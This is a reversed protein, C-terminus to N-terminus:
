SFHLLSGRNAGLRWSLAPGGQGRCSVPDSSDSRVADWLSDFPAAPIDVDRIPLHSWDMGLARVREPLDPVHLLDFEHRQMLTVVLDAGWAKIAALDTDLDRAWPDGTLSDGHKGPCFTLGLTGAALPHADIRLPHTLSTRSM